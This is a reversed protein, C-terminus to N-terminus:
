AAKLKGQIVSSCLGNCGAAHNDLIFGGAILALYRHSFKRVFRANDVPLLPVRPVALHRTILPQSTDHPHQRPLQRSLMM